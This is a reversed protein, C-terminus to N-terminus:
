KKSKIKLRNSTGSDLATVSFGKARGMEPAVKANMDINKSEKAVSDIAEAKGKEYFFKAMADPNMAVAMARHYAAADKIYGSDDVFSNFFPSMDTQKELLTKAEAPKYTVKEDGIQFEFGKFDESFLESTKSRYFESRKSQEQELESARQAQSKFAEYQEKEAESVGVGSSELPIKYQEKQKEFYDKAKALERKMAVKKKKIDKDEDLDEDYSFKDEMDFQIDEDDLGPNTEKYYEFLLKNPDENNFDRNIKIFDEFGRGTEQKYKLFASVDEPLESQSERAEFLQDVTDIERDYRNKIFSLVDEETLEPKQVNDQVDGQEVEAPQETDSIAENEQVSETQAQNEEEASMKEEHEQLLQEEVEQVGKEEEASVERVKIESM